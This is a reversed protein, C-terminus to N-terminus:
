RRGVPERRGQRRPAMSNSPGHREPPGHCIDISSAVTSRIARRARISTGSSRAPAARATLQRVDQLQISCSFSTSVPPRRASSRTTAIRSAMARPGPSRHRRPRLVDEAVRGLALVVVEHDRLHDLSRDSRLQRERGRAVAQADFCNEARSSAGACMRAISAARASFAKMVSVGSRASSIASRTRRAARGRRPAAREFAHRERDLIQEAGLAHRVVAPECM